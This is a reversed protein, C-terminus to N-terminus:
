VLARVNGECPRPEAGLCCVVSVQPQKNSTAALKYEQKENAAVHLSRKLVGCLVPTASWPGHFAPLFFSGFSRLLAVAPDAAGTEVSM